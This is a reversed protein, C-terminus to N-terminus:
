KLEKRLWNLYDENGNEVSVALIEPVEYVHVKRVQEELEGYHERGSKVILLWEEDEVIRGEWRYLSTAPGSIQVCAALKKDLLTKAIEKAKSRDNITIFVQIFDSM